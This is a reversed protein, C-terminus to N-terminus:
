RLSQSAITTARQARRIAANAASAIVDAPSGRTVLEEMTDLDAKAQRFEADARRDATVGAAVAFAARAEMVLAPSASTNEPMNKYDYSGVEVTLPVAPFGRPSENKFVIPANPKDVMYHPEATVIIAFRDFRTTAVLSAKSGSMELEGLNDFSGEPSVTWVVYTNMRAVQTGPPQLGEMQVSVKSVTGAREVDVKNKGGLSLSVKTKLPFQVVSVEASSPLLVLLSLLLCPLNM